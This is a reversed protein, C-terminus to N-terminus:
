GSCSIQRSSIDFSLRSENQLYVLPLPLQWAVKGGRFTLTPVQLEVGVTSLFCEKQTVVNKLITRNDLIGIATFVQTTRM